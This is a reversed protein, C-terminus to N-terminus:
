NSGVPVQPAPAVVATAAPATTSPEAPAPEPPGLLVDMQASRPVQGEPCVRRAYRGEANMDYAITREFSDEIFAMFIKSNSWAM